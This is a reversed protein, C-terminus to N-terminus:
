GVMLSPDHAQLYGFSMVNSLGYFKAIPHRLYLFAVVVRFISLVRPTWVALAGSLSESM